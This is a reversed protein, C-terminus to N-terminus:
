IYLREDLESKDALLEKGDNRQYILTLVEKLKVCDCLQIKANGLVYDEIANHHRFAKELKVFNESVDPIKDTYFWYIEKSTEKKDPHIIKCTIKDETLREPVKLYEELCHIFTNKDQGVGILLVYGGMKYLNGYCGDPSTPTTVNQEDKIFEKVKEEDGFVAMSHTPHLTRTGKPHAAAVTPLVGICSEAKTLDLECKDWTHTPICLLGGDKTFKEILCEILDKADVEGIAKLSTHVIVPRAKPIDIKNLQEKIQNITM